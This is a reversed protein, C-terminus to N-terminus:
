CSPYWPNRWDAFTITAELVSSNM